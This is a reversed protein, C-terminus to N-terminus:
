GEHDEHWKWYKWASLFCQRAVACAAQPRVPSLICAEPTSLLSSLQESTWKKRYIRCKFNMLGYPWWQHLLSVAIWSSRPQAAGYIRILRTELWQCVNFKTGEFGKLDPALNPASAVFASASHFSHVPPIVGAIHWRQSIQSFFKHFFVFDFDFHLIIKWSNQLSQGIIKCALFLVNGKRKVHKAAQYMYVMYAPADHPQRGQPLVHSYAQPVCGSTPHLIDVAGLLIHSTVVALSPVFVEVPLYVQFQQLHLLSEFTSFRCRELMEMKEKTEKEYIGRQVIKGPLNQYGLMSRHVLHQELLSLQLHLENHPVDELFPLLSWPGEAGEPLLSQDFQCWPLVYQSNPHSVPPCWSLDCPLQCPLEPMMVTQNPLKALVTPTSACVPRYVPM